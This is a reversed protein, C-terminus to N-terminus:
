DGSCDFGNLRVFLTFIALFVPQINLLHSFPAMLIRVLLVSM